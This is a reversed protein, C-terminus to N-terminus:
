KCCQGPPCPPSGLNTPQDAPKENNCKWEYFHYPMACYIFSREWSLNGDSFHCIVRNPSSMECGKFFQGGSFGEISVELGRRANSEEHDLICNATSFPFSSCSTVNFETGYMISYLKYRGVTTTSSEM